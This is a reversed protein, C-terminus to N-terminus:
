ATAAQAKAEKREARWDAVRDVLDDVRRWTVFTVAMSTLNSATHILDQTDEDETDVVANIATDTATSVTGAVVTHAVYKVVSRKTIGFM